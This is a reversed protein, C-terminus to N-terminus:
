SYVPEVTNSHLEYKYLVKYTYRHRYICIGGAVIDLKVHLVSLVIIYIHM